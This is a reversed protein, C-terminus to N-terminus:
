WFFSNAELTALVMEEGQVNKVVEVKGSKIIFMEEGIDGEKFITEGKKFSLANTKILSESM